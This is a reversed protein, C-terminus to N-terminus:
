AIRVDITVTLMMSRRSLMAIKPAVDATRIAPYRPRM